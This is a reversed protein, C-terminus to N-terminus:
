ASRKPPTPHRREQQELWRFLLEASRRDLPRGTIRAVTLARLARQVASPPRDSVVLRGDPLQLSLRASV